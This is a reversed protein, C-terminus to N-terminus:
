YFMKVAHRMHDKIKKQIIVHAFPKLVFLAQGNSGIKGLLCMGKSKDRGKKGYPIRNISLIYGDETTM